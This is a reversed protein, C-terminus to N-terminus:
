KASREKLSARYHHRCMGKRSNAENTCGRQVCTRPTAKAATGKVKAPAAKKTAAAKPKTTAM